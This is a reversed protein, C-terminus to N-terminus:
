FPTSWGLFIAIESNFFSQFCPDQCSNNFHASSIDVYLVAEQLRLHIGNQSKILHLLLGKGLLNQAVYKFNVQIDYIQM